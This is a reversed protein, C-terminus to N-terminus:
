SKQLYSVQRFLEIEKAVVNPNFPEYKRVFPADMLQSCKPRSEYQSLCDSLFFNLQESYDSRNQICKSILQDCSVGKIRICLEIYNDHINFSEEPSEKYPMFGNILELITIGVSWIDVRCDYKRLLPNDVFLEPPWYQITGIRSMTKDEETQLYRSAGFDCLKIEGTWNILINSPKVDRHIISKEQCHQLAKLVANSIYGILIEPFNNAQNHYIHYLNQLSMDMLEM